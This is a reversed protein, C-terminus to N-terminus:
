RNNKLKRNQDILFFLLWDFSYLRSSHKFRFSPINLKTDYLTSKMSRHKSLVPAPCIFNEKGSNSDWNRITTASIKLEKCIANEEIFMESLIFFEKCVKYSNDDKLYGNKKKKKILLALKEDPKDITRNILM